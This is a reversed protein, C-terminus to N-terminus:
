NPCVTVSSDGAVRVQCGAYEFTLTGNFRDTFLADLADPDVTNFLPPLSTAARDTFAAVRQVIAASMSQESEVQHCCSDPDDKAIM